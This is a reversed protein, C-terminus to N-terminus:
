NLVKSLGLQLSSFQGREPAPNVALTAGNESIIPGLRDANQGAVAVITRAHPKLATIHASLLTSNGSQASPSADAPWPLLAKDRGMRSSAGAALIVGCLDAM